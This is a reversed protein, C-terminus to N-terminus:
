LQTSATYWRAAMSDRFKWADEYSISSTYIALEKLAFRGFTTTGKGMRGILIRSNQPWIFEQNYTGTINEKNSQSAYSTSYFTSPYTTDTTFDFWLCRTQGDTSATLSATAIWKSGSAQISWFNNTRSPASGTVSFIHANPDIGGGIGLLAQNTTATPIRLADFRIMIHKAKIDRPLISSSAWSNTGGFVAGSVFSATTVNILSFHVDGRSASWFTFPSLTDLGNGFAATWWYDPLPGKYYSLDSNNTADVAVANYGYWESLSYPPKYNERNWSQGNVRKLASTPGFDSGTFPTMRAYDYLGVTNGDALFTNTIGVIKMVESYVNGISIQGSGTVPM